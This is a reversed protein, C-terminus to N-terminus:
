TLTSKPLFVIPMTESIETLVHWQGDKYYADSVAVHTISGEHFYNIYFRNGKKIRNFTSKEWEKKENNAIFCESGPKYEKEFDDVNIFYNKQLDADSIVYREIGHDDIIDSIRKKDFLDGILFQAM